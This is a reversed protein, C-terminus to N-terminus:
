LWDISVGLEGAISRAREGGDCRLHEPWDPRSPCPARIAAGIASDYDGVCVDLTAERRWYDRAAASLRERLAPETSLRRIALRLTEVEHGLDVAMGLPELRAPGAGPVHLVTMSRPDLCPIDATHALDHVITPKGAAVCRLWSASTERTTPWRLCIAVDAAALYEPLQEDAVYGCSVIRDAVGLARAEALLDYYDVTEGVLMLRLTPLDRAVSALAEVVPTLRKEPTIRGYAAFVVADAAVGHRTRVERSTVRVAALPDPVGMRIRSVPVGPFQRRLDDALWTNHVAVLRASEVPVRLMPWLQLVSGGLGAVVLDAVREPADEHSYRFEARYDDPRSQKWTLAKARAQHLHGDHIVVLGPHRVMYPWMFDHCLDNGLQYVVLDYPQRRHRWPFDHADFVPVRGGLSRGDKGEAPEVPEPGSANPPWAPPTSGVSLPHEVYADIQHRGSLPVLVDASYAAIGSRHPPLPGFWALRM